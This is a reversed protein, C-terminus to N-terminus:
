DKSCRQTRTSFGPGYKVPTARRTASAPRRNWVPALDSRLRRSLKRAASPRAKRGPVGTPPMSWPTACGRRLRAVLHVLAVKSADRETHFMSEGFFAGNLRV